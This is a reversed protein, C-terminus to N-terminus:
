KLFDSQFAFVLAILPMGASVDAGTRFRHGVHWQALLILSPRNFKALGKDFFTYAFLPGLRHISNSKKLGAISDGAAVDDADYLPMVLTYRLGAVFKFRTLYLLDYDQSLVWGNAPLLTDLQPEYWVRDGNKLNMRWYEVGLKARVVLPGARLALTPEIMLHYGRPGYNLKQAESVDRATDSYNASPSAYSTTYGLVPFFTVMEMTVRVNLMSIPQVEIAPGVRAYVPSFKPNLGFYIYNDRFFAKESSYLRQQMGMRQFLELGLPNYRLALQTSMVLRFAPIGVIPGPVTPLGWKDRPVQAPPPSSLGLSLNPSPSPEPPRNDTKTWPQKQAPPPEDALAVSSALLLLGCILEKM